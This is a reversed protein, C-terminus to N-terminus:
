IFKHETFTNYIAKTAKAQLNEILSKIDTSLRHNQQDSDRLTRDLDEERRKLEDKFKLHNASDQTFVNNIANYQQQDQDNVKFDKEKLKEIEIQLKKELDERYRVDKNITQIYQEVRHNQIQLDRNETELRTKDKLMDQFEEIVKRYERQAELLADQHKRNLSLRDSDIQEVQQEMLKLKEKFENLTLTKIKEIIEMTEVSKSKNFSYIQDTISHIKNQLETNFEDLNRNREMLDDCKKGWENDLERLSDFHGRQSENIQDQNSKDQDRLQKEAIQLREDMAKFQQSKKNQIARLEEEWRSIDTKMVNKVNQLEVVQKELQEIKIQNGITKQRWQQTKQEYEDKLTLGLEREREILKEIHKSVARREEELHAQMDKIPQRQAQQYRQFGQQAVQQLNMVNTQDRNQVLIQNLERITEETAGNGQVEVSVIYGNAAAASILLRVGQNGLENFRLDITKLQPNNRIINALIGASSVGLRNNQLDLHTLTKNICMAQYFLELAQLNNNLCITNWQLSLQRLAINNKLSQFLDLFGIPGINNGKLDIIGVNPFNRLIDALIRAGQDGIYMENLTIRGTPAQRQIIPILTTNIPNEWRNSM